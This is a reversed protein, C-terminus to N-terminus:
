PEVYRYLVGNQIAVFNGGDGLVFSPASGFGGFTGTFPNRALETLPGDTVTVDLRAFRGTDNRYYYYYKQRDYVAYYSLEPLAGVRAVTGNSDIRRVVWDSGDHDIFLVRNGAPDWQLLYPTNYRGSPGASMSLGKACNNTACDASFGFAYSGMLQTLTTDSAMKFIRFGPGQPSPGMVDSPQGSMFYLNGSADSEIPTANVGFRVCNSLLQGDCASIAQSMDAMLNTSAGSTIVSYSMGAGDYVYSANGFNNPWLLFSALSRFGIGSMQFMKAGSLTDGAMPVGQVGSGTHRAITPPNASTDIRRIFRPELLYVSDDYPNRYPWSLYPLKAAQLPQTEGYDPGTGYAPDTGAVTRVANANDITRVRVYPINAGDTGDVFYFRGEPTLAVGEGLQLAASSADVGDDSVGRTGNGALVTTAGSTGDFAVLTACSLGCTLIEDGSRGRALTAGPWAGNDIQPTVAVVVGDSRVRWITPSHMPRAYLEGNHSVAISSYAMDLPVETALMGSTPTGSLGNGFVVTPTGAAGGADIPIRIIQSKVGPLDSVLRASDCSYLAGGDPSLALGCSDPMRRTHFTTVAFTDLSLKVIDPSGGAAYYLVRREPDLAMSQSVTIPLGTIGPNVWNGTLPDFYTLRYLVADGFYIRRTVPDYALSHNGRNQWGGGLRAALAAGGIGPDINGGYYVWQGCNLAASTRYATQGLKDTVGLRLFFRSPDGYPANFATTSADIITADDALAGFPVGAPSLPSWTAGDTSYFLTFPSPSVKNQANGKWSVHLQQSATFVLDAPAIPDQPTASNVVVLDDIIPAKGFSMTFDISAPLSVHNAADRVWVYMTYDGNVFSSYVTRNTGDGFPYWGGAPCSPIESFCYHTIGAPGAPEDTAEIDLGFATTAFIPGGQHFSLMVIVPIQLDRTWIVPTSSASPGGLADKAQATLAFVGGPWATVDLPASFTNAACPAEGVLVADRFIAVSAAATACEGSVALTDATSTTGSAPLVISPAALFGVGTLAITSARTAFADAYSVTLTGSKAGVTGPLFELSVACAQGTGLAIPSSADGCTSSTVAFATDGAQTLVMREATGMGANTLIFSTTANSSLEVSGLDLALTAPSLAAPQAISLPASTAEVTNGAADTLTARVAAVATVQPLVLSVVEAALAPSRETTALPEGSTSLLWLRLSGLGHNDSAAYGITLTEGGGILEPLPDLTLSPLTADIAFDNTDVATVSGLADEVRVRVFAAAAEVSPLTVALETEGGSLDTTSAVEGDLFLSWNARSIGDEDQLTLAIRLTDGGRQLAGVEAIQAFPATDPGRGGNGGGSSYRGGNDLGELRAVSTFRPPECAYLLAGCVFAGWRGLRM